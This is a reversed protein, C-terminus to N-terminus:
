PAMMQNFHHEEQIEALDKRNVWTGHYELDFQRLGRLIERSAVFFYKTDGVIASDKYVVADPRDHAKELCFGRFERLNGSVVAVLKKV